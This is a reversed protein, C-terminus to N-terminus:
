SGHIHMIPQQHGKLSLGIGPSREHTLCAIHLSSLTHEAYMVELFYVNYM